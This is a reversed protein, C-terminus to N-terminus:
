IGSGHIHGQRSLRIKECKDVQIVLGDQIVLTVTGFRIVKLAERVLKELDANWRDVVQAGM